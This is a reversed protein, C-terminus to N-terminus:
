RVLSFHGEYIRGDELNLTFWFDNEPMGRGNYVGDWGEEMNNIQKILKGFQDFINLTTNRNLNVDLNIDLYTRYSM